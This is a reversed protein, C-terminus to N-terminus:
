LLICDFRYYTAGYEATNNILSYTELTGLNGGKIVAINFKRLRDRDGEFSDLPGKINNEEQPVM